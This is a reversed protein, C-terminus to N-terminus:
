CVNKQISYFFVTNVRRKIIQKLNKISSRDLTCQYNQCKWYVVKLVTLNFYTPNGPRDFCESWIWDYGIKIWIIMIHMVIIKIILLINYVFLFGFWFLKVMVWVHSVVCVSCVRRCLSINPKAYYEHQFERTWGSIHSKSLFYNSLGGRKTFITKFLFFSQFKGLFSRLHVLHLVVTIKWFKYIDRTIGNKHTVNQNIFYLRRLGHM